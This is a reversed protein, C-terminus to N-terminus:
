MEKKTFTKDYGLHLYGLNYMYIYIYIYIYFIFFIFFFIIVTFGSSIQDTQVKGVRSKFSIM